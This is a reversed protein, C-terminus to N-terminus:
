QSLVFAREFYFCCQLFEFSSFRRKKKCSSYTPPYWSSMNHWLCFAIQFPKLCPELKSLDSCFQEEIWDSCGLCLLSHESATIARQLCLSMRGHPEQWCPACVSWYVCMQASAPTNNWVYPFFKAKKKNNTGHKSKAQQQDPYYLQSQIM